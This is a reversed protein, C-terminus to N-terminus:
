LRCVVASPSQARTRGMHCPCDQGGSGALLGSGAACHPPSVLGAEASDMAVEGRTSCVTSV